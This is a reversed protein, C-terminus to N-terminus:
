DSGDYSTVADQGEGCLAVPKIECGSGTGKRVGDCKASSSRAAHRACIKWHIASGIAM